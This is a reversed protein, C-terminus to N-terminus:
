KAFVESYIWHAQGDAIFMLTAKNHEKIEKARFAAYDACFQERTKGDHTYEVFWDYQQIIKAYKADILELMAIKSQERRVIYLAHVIIKFPARLVQIATRFMLGVIGLAYEAVTLVSNVIFKKM